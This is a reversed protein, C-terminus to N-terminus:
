FTDKTINCTINKLGTYNVINLALTEDYM